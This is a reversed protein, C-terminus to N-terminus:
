AASRLPLEVTSTAQPENKEISLNVVWSTLGYLALAILCIWIVLAWKFADKKQVSYVPASAVKASKLQKARKAKPKNM